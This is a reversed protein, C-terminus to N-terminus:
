NVVPERSNSRSLADDHEYESPKGPEDPARWGTGAQLLAAVIAFVSGGIFLRQLSTAYGMVAVEHEVGKLTRVLAPTGLLKNILQATQTNNDPDLGLERFSTTLTSRLTRMFYGGSVSSGFSGALGRFMANVPIVIVHTQAPTLHLVHALTYNLLGGTTFGNVFLLVIYVAINADATTINGLVNLLVAFAVYCLLSATYFSGTRRIHLWGALIGGLAFGGNTPLLMLGASAPTWGRVALAYVPSYFLIGWRATMLAVTALCTLLNGRSRLVAIPVVPDSAWRSEVLVFLCLLFASFIIPTAQVKAAAMSYLFLVVSSILTVIGLYDMHALKNSITAEQIKHALVTRKPISFFATVAAVFTVPIQLAFVIRWGVLPELAGAIVAGLAVGSTYGTNICGFMLGRRKASVLETVLIFAVPTVAATGVGTVVRGFLFVRLDRALSTTILGCCQIMISWFLFLRATFIQSLRGALPTVSTVAILYASAFWSVSDYAQLEEAIPSQITTLLSINSTLIFILM